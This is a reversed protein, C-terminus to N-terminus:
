LVKRRKRKRVVLGDHRPTRKKIKAKGTALKGLRSFFGPEPKAARKKRLPKPKVDKPTKQPLDPMNSRRSQEVNVGYFSEFISM